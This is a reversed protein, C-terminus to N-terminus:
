RFRPLGVIALAKLKNPFFGTMHRMIVKDDVCRRNQAIARHAMTDKINRMNWYVARVIMGAAKFNGTVFYGFLEFLSGLLFAPAAWLLTGLQYNKLLNRLNNKEVEYRRFYPVVHQNENEVISKASSGGGYHYLVADKCIGVQMGYLLARWCLDIDESYMFYKEDFGGLTVFDGRSLMFASGEIFFPRKGWGLYGYVDISLVRGQYHDEGEFDLVRPGVINKNACQKYEVMTRLFNREFHTDTNLFLLESGTAIRAGINNAIGFGYNAELRVITVEPFLKSVIEMSSDSSNNDVVIIEINEYSQLCISEICKQIWRLGNYNVIVISVTPKVM